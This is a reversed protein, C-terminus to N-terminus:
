RFVGATIGAEVMMVAKSIYLRISLTISYLFFLAADKSEECDRTVGAGEVAESGTCFFLSEM